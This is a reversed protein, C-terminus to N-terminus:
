WGGSAGGGGFSGGGGSFGGGGFGGGFSSGGGYFGGGGYYRGGGRGSASSFMILSSIVFGIVGITISAFLLGFVVTIALVILWKIKSKKVLAKVVSLAFLVMMLIFIFSSENFGVNDRASYTVAPLEEGEILTMIAGVAENIGNFFQGQRFNPVIINEIIRKAYADPIAGELGYGVEIRVKRDDKAVLLIVGDDVGERGIKWADALRIGYQEITEPETTPVIVVVVQSGKEAEFAKLGAELRSIESASLTGTRDTVRATLDPLPQQARAFTAALLAVVVLLNNQLRNSSMETINVLSTRYFYM